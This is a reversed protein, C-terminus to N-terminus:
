KNEFPSEMLTIAKATPDLSVKCGLPFILKPDTHGFDVDTIVPIDTVNFEDKIISLIIHNLEKKEKASYDKARGFVIGNIRQLIGQIGYNRLMCGVRNPSPKEESTEFFLIRNNWFTKDPWFGTSKIFELVEICGGWLRGETSINGQLFIWGDDNDFFETCEGVTDRNAWDKYGNTWRAYPFYRYPFYEAFLIKRIHDICPSPFFKLQAFGAMVSPGYFTVM